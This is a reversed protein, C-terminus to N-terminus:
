PDNRQWLMVASRCASTSRLPTRCPNSTGTPYCVEVAKTSLSFSSRSRRSM